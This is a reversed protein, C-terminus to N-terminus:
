SLQYYLRINIPIIMFCSNTSNTTRKDQFQIITHELRLKPSILEKKGIKKKKKQM